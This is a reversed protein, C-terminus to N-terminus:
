TSSWATTSTTASHGAGSGGPPCPVSSASSGPSSHRSFRRHPRSPSPPSAQALVFGDTTAFGHERTHYAMSVHPDRLIHRLKGNFALSTTVGVTGADRDVLGTPSVPIAVAGGAPTGYALATVLDGAIVEQTEDSWPVVVRRKQAPIPEVM